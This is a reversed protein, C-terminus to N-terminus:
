LLKDPASKASRIVGLKRCLKRACNNSAKSIKSCLDAIDTYAPLEDYTFSSFYDSYSIHFTDAAAQFCIESAKRLGITELADALVSTKMCKGSGDTIIKTTLLSLLEFRSCERSYALAKLAWGHMERQAEENLYDAELCTDDAILSWATDDLSTFISNERNWKRVLDLVKNNSMMVIFPIMQEDSCALVADLKDLVHMLCDDAFIHFDYGTSNIRNRNSRSLLAERSLFLFTKEAFANYAAPDSKLAKATMNGAKLTKLFEKYNKEIAAVANM